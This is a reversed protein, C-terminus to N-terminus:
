ARSPARLVLVTTPAWRGLLRSTVLHLSFTQVPVLVGQSMAEHVVRAMATGGPYRSWDRDEYIVYDFGRARLEDALARGDALSLWDFEASGEPDARRYPRQLAYTMGSKVVVLFRATSPTTANAWRFVPAFWTGQEYVGEDGTVAYRLADRNVALTVAALALGGVALAVETCRRLGPAAGWAGRLEEGGLLPILPVFYLIFRPFLFPQVLVWLALYCTTFTALRRTGATTWGAALAAAALWPLPFVTVDIALRFLGLPVWALALPASTRRALLTAVRDTALPGHASTLFPWVPDGFWRLNALYFPAALMVAVAAGGTLAAVVRPRMEGRGMAIMATVLVALGIGIAQYRSQAGIWSAFGLLAAAQATLPERGILLLGVVTMVLMVYMDAHATTASKFVLPQCAVALLVLRLLLSTAADLRRYLGLAIVVWVGLNLMQAATAVHLYEFPLYGISWGFPLAYATDPIRTWGGEILIQRVHALHYRLVDADRPPAAACLWASLLWLFAAATTGPGTRAIARGAEGLECLQWRLTNRNAVVAILAVVGDVAMGVGLHHLLACVAYTSGTVAAGAVVGLPVAVPDRRQRTVWAGVGLWTVLRAVALVSALLAVGLARSAHIEM